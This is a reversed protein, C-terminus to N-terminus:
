TVKVTAHAATYGPKHAVAAHKGAKTGKKVTFHVAGSAGTVATKGLFTVVAGKVPTGSDLVTFTVPGPVSVKSQSARLTLPPLIQADFWAPSSGPGTQTELAVIDLPGASGEAELAQFTFLHKPPALTLVRGFATAAANTRVVQIVNRRYDFWLVWLHGGPAAALAVKSDQGGGSGPVTRAKKAGVRWLAIHACSITKTPVCYALYEGGHPRPESPNHRSAVSGPSTQHQAQV